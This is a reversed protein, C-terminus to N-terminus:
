RFKDNSIIIVQYPMIKLFGILYDDANYGKECQFINWNALQQKLWFRDDIIKELGYDIFIM